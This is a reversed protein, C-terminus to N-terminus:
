AHMHRKKGNVVMDSVFTSGSPVFSEYTWGGDWQSEMIWRVSQKLTDVVRGPEELFCRREGEEEEPSFGGHDDVAGDERWSM